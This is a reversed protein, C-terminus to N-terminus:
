RCVDTSNECGNDQNDGKGDVCVGTLVHMSLSHYAHADIQIM